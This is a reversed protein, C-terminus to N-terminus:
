GYRGVLTSSLMWSDKTKRSVYRRDRMLAPPMSTCSVVGSPTRRSTKYKRPRCAVGEEGVTMRRLPLASARVAAVVEHHEVVAADPPRAPCTGARRAERQRRERNERKQRDGREREM